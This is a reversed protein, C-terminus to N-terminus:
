RLAFYRYLFTVVEGRLCLGNPDFRNGPKGNTVGQEVAWRVADFYFEEAPVDPFSVNGAPVPMGQTRWLFTVFESRNVTDQPCFNGNPRGNTIEQEVAWAVAKYFFANERTDPVDPFRQELNAPEPCGAARWLFTVAEARTCSGLPDAIGGPKGNTIGQFAAWYVPYYFYQSRPVDSFLGGAPIWTLKGMYNQRVEETWSADGAPYFANVAGGYSFCSWSFTPASGTFAIERLKDNKSFSLYGIETVTEPLKVQRLQECYSFSCTNIVEVGDPVVYEGAIGCPAELLKTKDKNFMCVGDSSFNQNEDDVLIRKLNVCSPFAGRENIFEVNKPITVETLEPNHGFAFYNLSRLSDPLTLSELQNSGFAGQGIATVTDPLALESIRCQNFAYNGIVELGSNLTLSRVPCSRFANNGVERVSGPIVVTELSKCASFSTVGIKTVTDPISLEVLKSSNDFSYTGIYTIGPEIVLREVDQQYPHWPPEVMDADVSYGFDPMPGNGSITLTATETDFHWSLGEWFDGGYVAADAFVPFGAFVGLILALALLLAQGRKWCKM